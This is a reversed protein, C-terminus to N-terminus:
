SAAEDFHALAAAREAEIFRDFEAREIVFNGNALRIAAIKGDEILRLVTMRSRKLRRAVESTTLPGDHM